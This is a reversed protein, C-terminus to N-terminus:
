RLFLQLGEPGTVGKAILAGHLLAITSVITVVLGLGVVSLVTDVFAEFAFALVFLAALVVIMAGIVFEIPIGGGLSTGRLKLAAWLLCVGAATVTIFAIPVKKLPRALLCLSLVIMLLLTAATYVGKQKLHLVMVTPTALLVLGGIASLVQLVLSEKERRKITRNLGLAVGLVGCLVLVLAYRMALTDLLPM